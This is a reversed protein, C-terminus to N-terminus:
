KCETLEILVLKDNNKLRFAAHDPQSPISIWKTNKKEKETRVVIVFIAEDFIRHIWGKHFSDARPM